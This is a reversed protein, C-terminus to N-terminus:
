LFKLTNNMCGVVAARQLLSQKHLELRQPQFTMASVGRKMYMIALNICM